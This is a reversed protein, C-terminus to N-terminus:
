QKIFKMTKKEGDATVIVIFYCGPTIIGANVSWQNEGKQLQGAASLITRGLADTITANVPQSSASKILPVVENKVITQKLGIIRTNVKGLSITVVASYVTKGNKEKIVLRYYHLGPTLQQHLYSYNNGTNNNIDAISNYYIGDSSHQLEFGSLGEANAVTWELKGDNNILSADFRILRVPLVNNLWFGNNFPGFSSFEQSIIDGADSYARYEPPSTAASFSGALGSFDWNGSGSSNSRGVVSVACSSCVSVPASTVDRWNSGTPDVYPLTVKGTTTGNNRDLQWYETNVIGALTSGFNDLGATPPTAPFYEGTFDSGSALNNLTTLTIGKYLNPFGTKGLPFAYAGAIGTSTYRKMPGNVFSLISGGTVAGSATASVVLLNTATSTIIGKTFTVNNNIGVPCNLFVQETGNTKDAVAYSFYQTPIGPTIAVGPTNVTQDASGKFFIARSNDTYFSNKNRTFDGHLYLDGGVTNSLNLTGINSGAADGIILSGKVILPIALSNMNVIGSGLGAVGITLDGGCELLPPTGSTGLNLTTGNQVTVHWPYGPDGAVAQGWEISRNYTGGPKYILTSNIAYSPANPNVSGETNITCYHYITGNNIFNAPSVPIGSGITLDYFHPTGATSGTVTNNGLLWINGGTPDNYVCDGGGTADVPGNNAIRLTQGTGAAFYGSTLYFNSTVTNNTTLTVINDNANGTNDVTLSGTITAPLGNGTVQNYAGTYIYHAAANYSRSNSTRINGANTSGSTIGDAAGIKLTGGAQLQFSTYGSVYYEGPCSLTSQDYVYFLNPLTVVNTMDFNSNLIVNTTTGGVGIGFGIYSVDVGGYYSTLIQTGLPKVFFMGVVVSVDKPQTLKAPSNITLDGSLYLNCYSFNFLFYSTFGNTGTLNFTGGNLTLNGTIYVNLTSAAGSTSGGLISVYGADVTVNGNITMPGITNVSGTKVEFFRFEKTPGTAKIYLNGQVNTIVGNQKWSGGLSAVDITLNGWGPSGTKPLTAPTTGGSAWKKIIVNSSAGFSRTMGPFDTSDGNASSGIANHTYTGGNNITFSNFSINTAISSSNTFAAGTSITTAGTINLTSSGSATLTGANINLNSALANQDLTVDHGMNVTGMSNAAPPVANATWTGPTSWNGPAATTWGAAVTYSYNAGGNNNLNITSLDADASSPPTTGGSTFVYYSQNSGPTNINAPIDAAYDNGSVLTMNVVVSSGYNGNPAYRLFVGQGTPLTASTTATVTVTQGPFVSATAPSQSITSVSIPTANTEFLYGDTNTGANVDRIIYTYYNGNTQNYTGDAGNAYWSTKTNATVAAGRAWKPNFAAGVPSFLFGASANTAPAQITVMWTNLSGSRYAMATEGFGNITGRLAMSANVQGYGRLQLCLISFLCFASLATLRFVLSNFKKKFSLLWNVSFDSFLFIRKKM